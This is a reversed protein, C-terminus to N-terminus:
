TNLDSIRNAKKSDRPVVGRCAFSLLGRGILVSLCIALQWEKASGNLMKTEKTM